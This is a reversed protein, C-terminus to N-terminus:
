RGGNLSQLTALSSQPSDLSFLLWTASHINRLNRTMTHFTSTTEQGLFSSPFLQARLWLLGRHRDGPKLGAGKYRLAICKSLYQGAPPRM